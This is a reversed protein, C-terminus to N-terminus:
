TKAVFKEYLGVDDKSGIILSVREHLERASFSLIREKGTTARGGAEEVIWSLPFAEYVLRLKPKPVGPYLFIGGYLLNRHFDAVLSGIYRASYDKKKLAALFRQTAEDFNNSYAENISYIKGQAPIHITPHSLYFEGMAPDFTFGHVGAGATYVLMTSSGYIVYGAAIQESGARVVDSAEGPGDQSKRQYVSFITGVSVNADINSSGDLPDFVLVYKGLPLEKPIPIIDAAEESAMVCCHGGHNMAKILTDNAYEDLRQVAEGHVNVDGTEGLVDFLGAKTVKNHIKKIAIMLDWFLMALELRRENPLAKEELIYRQLTVLKRM